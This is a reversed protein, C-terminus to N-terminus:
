PENCYKNKKLLFAICTLGSVWMHACGCVFFHQVTFYMFPRCCRWFQPMMYEKLWKRPPWMHSPILIFLKFKLCHLVKYNDVLRTLMVIVPCHHQIIMEWFDEFTHPLPGQTAIFQSINDSSSTQLFLYNRYPWFSLCFYLKLYRM